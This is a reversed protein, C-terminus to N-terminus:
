GVHRAEEAQHRENMWRVCGAPSFASYYQERKAEIVDAAFAESTHALWRLLQDGRYAKGRDDKAHAAILAHVAADHDRGIPWAWTSGKGAVIGRAYAERHAALESDVVAEVRASAPAPRDNRRESRVVQSLWGVADRQNAAWGKRERTAVYELWRAGRDSM